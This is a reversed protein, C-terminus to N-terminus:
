WSRVWKVSQWLRSKPPTRTFLPLILSLPSGYVSRTRVYQTVSSGVWDPRILNSHFIDIADHFMSNGPRFTYGCHLTTHGREVQRCLGSRGIMGLRCLRSM